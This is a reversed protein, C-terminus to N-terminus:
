GANLIKKQELRRRRIQLLELEKQQHSATFALAKDVYTM